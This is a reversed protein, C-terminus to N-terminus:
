QIILKEVWRGNPTTAQIFYIGQVENLLLTNDRNTTTTTETVVRGTIDTVTVRVDQTVPTSLNFTFQGSGPNPSISFQGTAFGDVSPTSAIKAGCVIGKVPKTPTVVRLNFLTSGIFVNGCTDAFLGYPVILASTAPGNNGIVDPGTFFDGKGAYTSIIGTGAAVKRVRQNSADSIYVNGQKDASVRVPNNLQAANAPGGDGSFGMTTGAFTNIIGASGIIRVRHNKYDAVFLNNFEDMCIGRPQDFKAFRAQGGDGSFGYAGKTGAYTSIKGTTASVRRIINNGLEAIYINNANDVAVDYPANMLASDAAWGDGAYGKQGRTGAVVTAIRTLMNVRLVSSVGDAILLNGDRDICLGAVGQLKLTNAPGTKATNIANDDAYPLGIVRSIIGTDDIMRVCADNMYGIPGGDGIYITGKRDKCVSMPSRLSAVLAKSSDGSHGHTNNGAVHIMFQANAAIAFLLMFSCLAM